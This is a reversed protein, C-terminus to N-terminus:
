DNSASNGFSRLRRDRETYACRGRALRAFDAVNKLVLEATYNSINIGAHLNLVGYGPLDFRPVASSATFDSYRQGQYSYDGGVFLQRSDSIDHTYEASVGGSFLPSYPLRSGAPAYIASPAPSTLSADTYTANATVRFDQTVRFQLLAEAGKSVAAGGNTYYESDDANRAQLQINNWDIYFAATEFYIKRDWFYSKLGVEYNTTTDPGYTSPIGSGVVLNPGGARYATAFRAYVTTDSTFKYESTVLYTPVKDHSKTTPPNPDALIGVEDQTATQYNVSYRVGAQIDFKPTFHYTVDGYTAYETYLSPLTGTFITPTSIPKYTVPDEGLLHEYYSSRETTGFLGVQWELAQPSSNSLRFEQSFKDTGFREYIPVDFQPVSLIESLLPGFIGSTDVFASYRSQAYSTSSTFNVGGFSAKITANYVNFNQKNEDAGPVRYQEDNGYVPQGTVSNVDETSSSQADRGQILASLRISLNAAPKWLLSLDGGNVYAANVDNLHRVPDDIFGPDERTFGSVRLALEDNIPINAAGRLGYGDGGGDVASGDAEIRGSFATTSPAITDYKLLGGLSSSGYLTGQPGKLVEIQQLDSPDLNPLVLDGRALATSSGIPTDDVYVGVTPTTETGTSIGRIEIQTFGTGNDDISLGPVERYYDQIDVSGGQQLAASSLVSVAAPVDLLRESRKQATVVVEAVSPPQQGNVSAAPAATQAQAVGAAGTGLAVLASASMLRRVFCGNKQSRM